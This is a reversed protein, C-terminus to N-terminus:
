LRWLTRVKHKSYKLLELDNEIDFLIAYGQCGAHQKFANLSGKRDWSGYNIWRIQSNCVCQKVTWSILGNMIGDRLHQAHGIFHKGVAVDGCLCFHFYAYLKENKFAGYYKLYQLEDASHYRPQVPERYWGHMPVAQRIEKSTNIEYIDDLYENWAFEKFEYGQKQSLLIARRTERKVGKIYEEHTSPVGLLAMPNWLLINRAQSNSAATTKKRLYIIGYLDLWEMVVEHVIARTTTTNMGIRSYNPFVIIRNERVLDSLEHIRMISHRVNNVRQTGPIQKLIQKLQNRFEQNHMIMASERNSPVPKITEIEM